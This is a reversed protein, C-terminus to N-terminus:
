ALLLRQQMSQFATRASTRPGLAADHLKGFSGNQQTCSQVVLNEPRRGRHSRSHFAPQRVKICGGLVCAAVLGLDRATPFGRGILLAPAVEATVAVATARRSTRSWGELTQSWAAENANISCAFDLCCRRCSPQRLHGLLCPRFTESCGGLAPRPPLITQTRGEYGNARHPPPRSCGRRKMRESCRRESSGRKHGKTSAFCRVSACWFRVDWGDSPLCHPRCPWCPGASLGQTESVVACCLM